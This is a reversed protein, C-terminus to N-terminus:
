GIIKLIFYSITSVSASMVSGWVLDVASVILPWGKLTALNTLDYTSYSVLGFFLGALLAYKWSDKALAPNIVFFVLGAIFVLAFMATPILKPSDSMLFGLEKQYFNKAILTLWAGEIVLLVGFAVVYPKLFQWM